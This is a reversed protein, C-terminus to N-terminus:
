RRCRGSELLREIEGTGQKRLAPDIEFFKGAKIGIPTFIARAIRFLLYLGNDRAGLIELGVTDLTRSWVSAPEFNAACGDGATTEDGAVDVDGLALLGSLVFLKAAIHQLQQGSTIWEGANESSDHPAHLLKMGCHQAADQQEIAFAPMEALRHCGAQRVEIVRGDVANFDADTSARTSRGGKGSRADDNVVDRRMGIPRVVFFECGASSQTRAPRM